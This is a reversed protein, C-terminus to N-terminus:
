LANMKTIQENMRSGQGPPMASGHLRCRLFPPCQKLGEVFSLVLEALKHAAPGTRLLASPTPSGRLAGSSSAGASAPTMGRGVHSPTRKGFCFAQGSGPRLIMMRGPRSGAWREGWRWFRGSCYNQVNILSNPLM